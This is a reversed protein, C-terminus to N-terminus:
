FSYQYTMSWTTFDSGIRASIGETAFLTLRHSRALPVNLWMGTRWNEQRTDGKVGDISTVGGEIYAAGAGLLWGPRFRWLVTARALDIPDQELTSNVLYGENDGYWNRGVAFELTVNNRRHSIGLQGGLMWRNSGINILRDELYRGTPLSTEISIGIITRQEYSRFEAKSLPPAGVLNLGLRLRLDGLGKRKAEAPEGLYLGEFNVDGYPLAVSALGSFKGLKVGRAYSVALTNVTADAGEIPVSSSFSVEGTSSTGTVSLFNMGVPVNSLLRPLVDNAHAGTSVILLTLLLYIAHASKMISM